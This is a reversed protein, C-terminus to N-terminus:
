LDAQSIEPARLLHKLDLYKVAQEYGAQYLSEKVQRELRFDVSSPVSTRILLTRRWQDFPLRNDDFADLLLTAVQQVYALLGFSKCVPRAADPDRAIKITIEPRDSPPFLKAPEVEALVGDVLVEDNLKRIAFVGPIGVSCRVAASLKVTPTTWTSFVRPRASRVETCVVALPRDLDCFRKGHYVEELWREMRRGAYIGYGRFLSMLSFDLFQRFDTDLLLEFTQETTNGAALLGALISGASAGAWARVMGGKEEIARLAGLHAALRTGGGQLFLNLEM